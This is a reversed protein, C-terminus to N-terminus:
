VDFAQSKWGSDRREKRAQDRAEKQIREAEEGIAEGVEEVTDRVQEYQSTGEEMLSEAGRKKAVVDRGRRGLGTRKGPLLEEEVGIALIYEGKPGVKTIGTSTVSSISSPGTSTFVARLFTLPDPSAVRAGAAKRNLDYIVRDAQQFMAAIQEELTSVFQKEIYGRLAPRAFFNRIPHQSDHISISFGTVAVEVRTLKFFSERDSEEANKVTLTVDLGNDERETGIKIDLMGYDEITLWGTKKHLYYSIDKAQLRLGSISLTTSTSFESAYAAYGKKVTIENHNRFHTADPVFSTSTFRVNDIVLDVEESTFEVRPLPIEELAGLIRPLFVQTLDSWMSGADTLTFGTQTFKTFAKGLREFRDGLQVLAKDNAARQLCKNSEAVFNDADKKWAANLNVLEQAQDYLSEARRQARSSTIYGPDNIARDLLSEADELLSEIRSDNELDRAVKDAAQFVPSLDGTFSEVIERFLSAASDAKDNTEVNAEVSSAAQKLAVKSRAAYKRVLGVITNLSDEYDPNSQVENVVGKFREIFVDKVDTPLKEDVYSKLQRGSKSISALADDKADEAGRLVKKKLQKSSVDGNLNLNVKGEAKEEEGPRVTKAVQKSTKTARISAEAAQEAADAFMDRFLNIIDGVIRRLQSSTLLLTFLEKLARTAEGIERDSPVPLDPLDADADVEFDAQSALWLFRQIKDESNKELVIRVLGELVARESEVLERGRVSLKGGGVKGTLRAGLEPQLLNSKLVKQVLTAFQQSTPLKGEKLAAAARTLSALTMEAQEINSENLLPLNSLSTNSLSM